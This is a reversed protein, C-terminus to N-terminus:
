KISNSTLEYHTVDSWHRRLVFDATLSTNDYDISWQTNSTIDEPNPEQSAATLADWVTSDCYAGKQEEMVEIVADYREKGHGYIDNKQNPLVKDIYMGYFNTIAPMKTVVMERGESECDYEVVRGDGSADTIYYHYDRGSTAFMDYSRLLEVAEETTAARDLVLRIAITPTISPKGTDQNVPKSDLTLVAISVGKENIGDLCIFPSTLTSLKEKISKDPNNASANSLAAFGVSKYGDKPTCYVLMASTDNKFDYNRGMHANGDSDILSFATCAFKPTEVSVPLLPLCEKLVANTMDQDTEIGYNIVNEISYDFKVDMRYLNYGDDYDTLKEISNLTQLRTYYIGVFVAVAIVLLAVICLIIIVVKKVQM